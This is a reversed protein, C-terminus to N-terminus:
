EVIEPLVASLYDLGYNGFLQQAAVPISSTIQIYGGALGDSAPVLEILTQSLRQKAKLRFSTQGIEDGEQDFVEVLIDAEQSNPNFIAMGTFSDLAPERLSRANSIHGHIAKRFLQTQFPLAAAFRGTVPEGFVVDGIIGPKTAEMTISGVVTTSSNANLDFIEAVNAEYSQRAELTIPKGSVQEVEGDEKSVFATLTVGIAENTPNVVKVSTFIEEGVALQSSYARSSETPLFANLGFVTDGLDILEAGIAGPGDVTVELYGESIPM